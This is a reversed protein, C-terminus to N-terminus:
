SITDSMGCTAMWKEYNRSIATKFIWFINNEYQLPVVWGIEVHSADCRVNWADNRLFIVKLIKQSCHNREIIDSLKRGIRTLRRNMINEVSLFLNFLTEFM